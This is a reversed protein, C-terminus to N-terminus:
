HPGHDVCWTLQQNGMFPILQKSGYPLASPIQWTSKRLTIRKKNVTRKYFEPGFRSAFNELKHLAHNQEFVAAYCELAAHATYIGACGCPKEKDDQTHPASDTGLFFHNDGSTAAEILAQQDQKRKLIPLCYAHPQLGGQFLANRNHTLHHATITAATYASNCTKIYAVAERTTIHELVMRLQPFKRRMPILHRDIFLAERDFIDTTPDTIEGHILLPVDLKQLTELLPDIQDLQAIGDQSQTTAGQPYLKCGALIGSAHAELLTKSTMTPTLYLTMLPEFNRGEPVHALIRSRYAQAQEINTIPPALNPMVIARQFYRSIDPVTRSLFPGDRLHCHWDDPAIMAFSDTM